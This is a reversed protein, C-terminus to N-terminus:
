GPRSAPPTWRGTSTWTGSALAALRPVVAYYVGSGVAAAVVLTLALLLPVRVARRM